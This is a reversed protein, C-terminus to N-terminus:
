PAALDAPELEFGLENASVEMCVRRMREPTVKADNLVVQIALGDILSALRLSLEEVNADSTFEGSEKGARVIDAIQSRWREDLIERDKAMEADRLARVWVEIWLAWEDLRGYEPLLGPVSLDILRALQDRARPMRRIDRSARLYFQDNAFTLAEALLRDKSEFYYLILGPSVGAEHAIDSIRTEALGRETIVRAAADLIEQHRDKVQKTGSASM